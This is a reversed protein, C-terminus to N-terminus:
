FTWITFRFCFPIERLENRVRKKEHTIVIQKPLKWIFHKVTINACDQFEFSVIGTEM